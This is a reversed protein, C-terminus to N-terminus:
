NAPAPPIQGNGQQNMASNDPAAPLPPMTPTSEPMASDTQPIQQVAPTPETVNENATPIAAEVPSPNELIPMPEPEVEPITIPAPNTQDTEETPMNFQGEAQTGSTDSATTAVVDQAPAAPAETIENALSSIKAMVQSGEAGTLKELHNVGVLVASPKGNKTLVYMEDTGEVEDVIKNFMDRAETVPIIKEIDVSLM